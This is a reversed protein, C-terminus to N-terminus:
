PRRGSDSSIGSLQERDWRALTQVFEVLRRKHEAWQKESLRQGFTEEIAGRAEREAFFPGLTPPSGADTEELGRRQDLALM